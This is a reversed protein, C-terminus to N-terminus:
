TKPRTDDSHFDKNFHIQSWKKPLTPALTNYWGPITVRSKARGTSLISRWVPQVRTVKSHSPNFGKEWRRTSDEWGGQTDPRLFIPPIYILYYCQTRQVLWAHRFHGSRVSQVTITSITYTWGNEVLIMM